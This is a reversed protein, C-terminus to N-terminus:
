GGTSKRPLLREYRHDVRIPLSSAPEQILEIDSISGQLTPMVPRRTSEQAGIGAGAPKTAGMAGILVRQPSVVYLFPFVRSERVLSQFLAEPRLEPKPTGSIFVYQDAANGRYSSLRSPDLFVRHNVWGKAVLRQQSFPLGLPGVLHSGKGSDTFARALLEAAAWRQHSSLAGTPESAAAPVPDAGGLGRPYAVTGLTGSLHAWLGEFDYYVPISAQRLDAVIARSSSALDSWGGGLALTRASAESPHFFTGVVAAPGGLLVVNGPESSWRKLLEEIRDAFPRALLFTAFPLGFRDPEPVYRDRLWGEDYARRRAAHYTSRPLGSRSLREREPAAASGLLVAITRAEAETLARM